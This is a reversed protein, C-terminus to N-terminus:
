RITKLERNATASSTQLVLSEHVVSVAKFLYICETGFRSNRSHKASGFALRILWYLLRQPIIRDLGFTNAPLSYRFIASLGFGRERFMSTVEDSTTRTLPYPVRGVTHLFRHFLGQRGALFHAADTNEMIVAGGESLLAAIKKIVEAPSDVHALLGLCIILDFSNAPLDLALFDGNLVAVRGLALKSVSSKAIALMGTSMDVLTLRNTSTLLPLSISGDGCGIDLVSRPNLRRAFEQVTERRVEINYRRRRLYWQPSEFRAKVETTKTSM